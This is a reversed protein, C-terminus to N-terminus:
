KSDSISRALQIVADAIQNLTTLYDRSDMQAQKQTLLNYRSSLGTALDENETNGKAYNSLNTIARAYQANQIDRIINYEEPLLPNDLLTRLFPRSANKPDPDVFQAASQMFTPLFDGKATDWFDIKFQNALFVRTNDSVKHPGAFKRYGAKGCLIRLMVQTHWKEFNFGIFVFTRIKELATRLGDPLGSPSLSSGILSFLDEYDLVLSEDELVSGAINYILPAERSPPAVDDSPREGKRYHSFRHTVGYKFFTDSLFTDPNISLILHFPLQAITKLIEEDYGAISPLRHCETRMSQAVDSKVSQEQPPFQFLGDEAYYHYGEVEDKYQENLKNRLYMNMPKNDFHMIEPGIVLACQENAIYTLIKDFPFM